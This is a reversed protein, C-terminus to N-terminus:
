FGHTARYAAMVHEATQGAYWETVQGDRTKTTCIVLGGPATRQSLTVGYRALTKNAQATTM